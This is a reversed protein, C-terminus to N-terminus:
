LAITSRIPHDAKSTAVKRVLLCHTDPKKADQTEAEGPTTWPTDSVSRSCCSPPTNRGCALSYFCFRHVLRQRRRGPPHDANEIRSLPDRRHTGLGRLRPLGRSWRYSWHRRTQRNLLSHAALHSRCGTAAHIARRILTCLVDLPRRLVDVCRTRTVRVDTRTEM